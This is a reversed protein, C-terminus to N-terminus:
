WTIIGESQADLHVNMTSGFLGIWPDYQYQVVVRVRSGINNNGDPYQVLVTVNSLNESAAYNDVLTTVASYNSSSVNGSSRDVGRVMAYRVGAKAADNLNTYVMLMRDAEIGGFMIVCLTLCIVLFEIVSSGRRSSLRLLPRRTM